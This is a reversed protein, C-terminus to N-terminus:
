SAPETPDRRVDGACAETASPAGKAQISVTAAPRTLAARLRMLYYAARNRRDTGHEERLMHREIEDRVKEVRAVKAELAEVRADREALAAAALEAAAHRTDDARRNWAAVAEERTSGGNPELQTRVGCTLCQIGWWGGCARTCLNDSGCMPCSKLENSM